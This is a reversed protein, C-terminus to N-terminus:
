GPPGSANAHSLLKRSHSQDRFARLTWFCICDTREIARILASCSPQFLGARLLVDALVLYTQPYRSSNMKRIVRSRVPHKCCDKCCPLCFCLPGCAFPVNMCADHDARRLETRYLSICPSVMLFSKLFAQVFGHDLEFGEGLKISESTEASATSAELPRMSVAQLASAGATISQCGRQTRCGPSLCDCRIGGAPLPPPSSLLITGDPLVQLLAM